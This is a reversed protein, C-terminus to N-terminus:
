LFLFDLSAITPTSKMMQLLDQLIIFTSNWTQLSYTSVTPIIDYYLISCYDEKKRFSYLVKMLM